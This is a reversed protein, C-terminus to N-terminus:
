YEAWMSLHPAPLLPAKPLMAYDLTISHNYDCTHSICITTDWLLARAGKSSMAAPLGPASAIMTASRPQM